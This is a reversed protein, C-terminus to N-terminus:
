GILLDNVLDELDLLRRQLVRLKVQLESVALSSEAMAEDVELDIQVVDLLKLRHQVLVDVVELVLLLLTDQVVM